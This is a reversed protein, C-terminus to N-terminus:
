ASGSSEQEVKEIDTKECFDIKKVQRYYGWFGGISVALVILYKPWFVEQGKWLSLLDLFLTAFALTLSFSVVLYKLPHKSIWFLEIHKEDIKM